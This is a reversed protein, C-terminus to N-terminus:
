AYRKRTKNKNTKNKMTKSLPIGDKRPMRSMRVETMGNERHFITFIDPYKKVLYEAANKNREFRTNAVGLGGPANYKTKITINNYRLVGGDKLYYLASQEYDEKTEALISPRLNPLKRNIYGYAAGIIFKLGTSVNDKMFFPNKVPYIGWIYLKEDELKDFAQTFLKHVNTIRVLKEPGSRKLFAEVDDDLSVIKTNVPFYSTIFNRQNAIGLKGVVIKGYMNEPVTEKYITEEEKNAVFIHIIKADVKGQKLMTLTKETVEKARKYTPIAVVYEKSM